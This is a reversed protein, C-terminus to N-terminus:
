HSFLRGAASFFGFSWGRLFHLVTGLFTVDELGAVQASRHDNQGTGYSEQHESAQKEPGQSFHDAM